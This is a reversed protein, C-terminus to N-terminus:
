SGLTVRLRGNSITRSLATVLGTLADTNNSLAATNNSLSLIQKTVSEDMKQAASPELTDFSNFFNRFFEKLKPDAKNIIAGEAVDILAQQNKIAQESAGSAFLRALQNVKIQYLSLDILLGKNVIEARTADNDASKRDELSKNYAKEMEALKEKFEDERDKVADKFDKTIQEEKKRAQEIAERDSDARIVRLGEIQKLRNEANLKDQNAEDIKRQISARDDADQEKALDKQLEIIEEDAEKIKDKNEIVEEDYKAQNLINQVGTDLVEQAATFNGEGRLKTAENEYGKFQDIYSARQEETLNMGFIAEYFDAKNVRKSIESEEQLKKMDEYYEDALKKMDDQYDKTAKAIDDNYDKQLDTLKDRSKKSNNFEDQALKDILSLQQAAIAFIDEDNAPGMASNAVTGPMLRDMQFSLQDQTSLLPLISGMTFNSLSSTFKVALEVTQQLTLNLEGAKANMAQLAGVSKDADLTYQAQLKQARSLAELQGLTSAKAEDTTDVINLLEATQEVALLNSYEKYKNLDYQKIIVDALVDSQQKSIGNLVSTAQQVREVGFSQDNVSKVIKFMEETIERYPNVPPVYVVAEDAQIKALDILTQIYDAYEKRRDEATEALVVDARQMNIFTQANETAINSVNGIREQIKELAGVRSLYRSIAADTSGFEKQYRAELERRVEPPTEETGQTPRDLRGKVVPILLNELTTLESPLDKSLAARVASDLAFEFSSAIFADAGDIFNFFRGISAEYQIGARPQVSGDLLGQTSSDGLGLLGLFGDNIVSLDYDYRKDVANVLARIQAQDERTLGGTETGALEGGVARAELIRSQDIGVSAAQTFLAVIDADTSEFGKILQKGEIERNANLQNIYENTKEILKDFEQTSGAISQTLVNFYEAAENDRTFQVEFERFTDSLSAIGAMAETTQGERLLSDGLVDGNQTFMDNLNRAFPLFLSQLGRGALALTNEINGGLRDYAAATTQTRATLVANSIGLQELVRDLEQLRDVENTINKVSNLTKRDIEFRRSLSTIDGSFFEKLAIAAGSFGQLPDIIALRRAVNDLQELDVNYKRTIQVLSTFGMMQENLSGGFKQQQMSAIRVVESYKEFSGSVAQVTSATKQLENARNLLDGLAYAVQGITMQLFGFVASTRGAFASLREFPSKEQKDDRDMSRRIKADRRAADERNNSIDGTSFGMRRLTDNDLNGMAALITSPTLDSGGTPVVGRALLQRTRLQVADEYRGEAIAVEEAARLEAFRQVNLQETAKDLVRYSQIIDQIQKMLQATVLDIDEDSALPARNRLRKRLEPETFTSLSDVREGITDKKFFQVDRLLDGFITTPINTPTAMNLNLMADRFKVEVLRRIARDTANGLKAFNEVTDSQGGPSGKQIDVERALDSEFGRVDSKFKARAIDTPTKGAAKRAVKDKARQEIEAREQLLQRNLNNITEQVSAQLLVVTQALDNDGSIIAFNRLEQLQNTVGAIRNQVATDVADLERSLAFQSFGATGAKSAISRATSFDGREIRLDKSVSREFGGALQQRLAGAVTQDVIGSSSSVGSPLLQTYVEEFAKSYNGATNRVSTKFLNEANRQASNVIRSADKALKAVETQFFQPTIKEGIVGKELITLSEDLVSNTKGVGRIFQTVTEIYTGAPSFGRGRLNTAFAEIERQAAVAKDNNKLVGQPVLSAAVEDRVRNTRAIEDRVEQLLSAQAPDKELSKAVRTYFRSLDTLPRLGAQTVASSGAELKQFVEEGNFQTKFRSLLSKANTQSKVFFDLTPDAEIPLNSLLNRSQRTVSAPASYGTGSFNRTVQTQNKELENFLRQMQATAQPIGSTDVRLGISLDAM